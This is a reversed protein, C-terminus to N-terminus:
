PKVTRRTPWPSMAGDARFAPRGKRLSEVLARRSQKAKISMIAWPNIGSRGKSWATIEWWKPFPLPRGQESDHWIFLRGCVTKTRRKM